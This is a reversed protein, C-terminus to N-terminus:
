KLAGLYAILDAAAQATFSQLLGEPMLSVPLTQESQIEAKKL